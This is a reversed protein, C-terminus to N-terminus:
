SYVEVIPRIQSIDWGGSITLESPALPFYKAYDSYPVGVGHIKITAALGKMDIGLALWKGSLDFTKAVNATKGDSTFTVTAKGNEGSNGQLLITIVDGESVYCAPFTYEQGATLVIGTAAGLVGNVKYGCYKSLQNTDCIIKFVGKVSHPVTYSGYDTQVGTTQQETLITESIAGVDGWGDLEETPWTEPIYPSDVRGAHLVNHGGMDLDSDITVESLKPRGAYFTPNFGM